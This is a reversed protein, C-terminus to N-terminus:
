VTFVKPSGRQNVFPLFSEYFLTLFAVVPWVKCRIEHGFPVLYTLDYRAIYDEPTKECFIEDLIREDFNVGGNFAVKWYNEGNSSQFKERAQDISWEGEDAEDTSSLM